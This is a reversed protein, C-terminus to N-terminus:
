QPGIPRPQQLFDRLHQIEVPKTLHHDFVAQKQEDLANRGTLAIFQSAALAPMARMRTVLAYGDEDPLGIDSLVVSPVISDLQAMAQSATHAVHVAHGSRELLRALIRASEEHDEVLLICHSLSEAPKQNAQNIHRHLSELLLQRDVPKTLYDSCGAALCKDREGKMANATLAIIPKNFGRERLTSAADYGNIEPMQMDLVIARYGTGLAEARKVKKLAQAASPATDVEAGADELIHQVVHLVDRRDDVALLRYPLRLARVPESSESDGPRVPTALEVDHAPGTPLQLTVTSGVGPTSELHISGGLSAALRQSIALGLGSGGFRRSISSDAQTFSGFVEAQQKSTMGIGTDIVQFLMIGADQRSQYEIRLTVSGKETFKVANGTLNILIQRLRTPDTEMTVPLRGAYDVALALQKCDAQLQMTDLTQEIIAVPSVRALELELKGSEIRSLDLIDDLLGILFQGNRKITKVSQLNDPDNLHADLLDAYGLIATMPTRIEHSMNALFESKLRNAKEAQEQAEEAQQKLAKLKEEAQRRQTVEEAVVNIGVVRDNVDRMPIWSQIWHREVGPQAPTTGSIPIELVAEGTHLIRRLRPLAEKAIDPLLEELSRGIHESASLGNFAALQENVRTFKLNSDLVCLGVPATHYIDEIEQLLARTKMEAMELALEMQRRHTVDIASPILHTVTGDTSCMPVIQFDITARTNGELMIDVDFRSHEGAAAREIAADLLAQSDPLQSWWYSERFPKGLVESSEIGAAALASENAQLLIGDTTCVGVFTRLSDIVQRTFQEASKTETIDTFTVVMGGTSPISSVYPLVRRLYWRGDRTHIQAEEGQDGLTATLPLEPMDVAHHAVQSICRGMDRRTLYYIRQIAPTFRQIRHADDLFLTALQGSDLLNELHDNAQRLALQSTENSERALELENYARQLELNRAMLEQNSSELKENATELDTLNRLLDAQTTSLEHKLTDIWPQAHQSWAPEADKSLRSLITGLKRIDAIRCDDAAAKGPLRHRIFGDGEAVQTFTRGSADRISQLGTSGHATAGSFLIGVARHGQDVALTHFLRDIPSQLTDKDGAQSHALAQRHFRGDRITVRADADLIHICQPGFIAGDEVARVAMASDQAIADILQECDLNAALPMILLSLQATDHLRGLLECLDATDGANCGIAVYISAKSSASSNRVM